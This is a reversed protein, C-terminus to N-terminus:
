GSVAPWGVDVALIQEGPKEREVQSPGRGFLM